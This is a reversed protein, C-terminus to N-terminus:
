HSLTPIFLVFIHVIMLSCLIVTYGRLTMNDNFQKHSKFGLTLFLLWVAYFTVM